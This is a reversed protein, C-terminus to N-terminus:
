EVDSPSWRFVPTFPRCWRTASFAFFTAGLAGEEDLTLDENSSLRPPFPRPVPVVVATESPAPPSAAVWLLLLPRGSAAAAFGCWCLRPPAASEPPSLCGRGPVSSRWGRVPPSHDADADAGLLKNENSCGETHSTPGEIIPNASTSIVEVIFPKSSLSTLVFGDPTGM